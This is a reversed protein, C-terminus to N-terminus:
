SPIDKPQTPLSPFIRLNTQSHYFETPEINLSGESWLHDM